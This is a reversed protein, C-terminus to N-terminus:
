IFKHAVWGILLIVAPRTIGAVLAKFIKIAVIETTDKSLASVESTSHDQHTLMNVLVIIGVAEPITLMRQCFQDMIFWAWLTVLVYGKWSYTAVDTIFGFVLLGLEKM